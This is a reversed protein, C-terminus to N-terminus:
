HLDGTASWWNDTTSGTQVDDARDIVGHPDASDGIDQSMVNCLKVQDEQVEFV